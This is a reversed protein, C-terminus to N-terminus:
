SDSTLTQTPNVFYMLSITDFIHFYLPDPNLKLELIFSQEKQPNDQHRLVQGKQKLSSFAHGYSVHSM